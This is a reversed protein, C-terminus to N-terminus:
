HRTTDIRNEISEIRQLAAAIHEELLTNVQVQAKAVGRKIDRMADVQQHMLLLYADHRKREEISLQEIPTAQLIRVARNIQKTGRRYRKDGLSIHDRAQAVRYGRNKICELTRHAEKELRKGVSLVIYRARTNKQIDRGLIEKLSQYSFLEGYPATSLIDFLADKGEAIQLVSAIM